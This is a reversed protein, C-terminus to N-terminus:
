TTMTAAVREDSVAFPLLHNLLQARLVNAQESFNRQLAVYIARGQATEVAIPEVGLEQFDYPSAAMDIRRIRMALEFAQTTVSSPVLPQMRMCWKYVDMNAHLCGAQDREPQEARSLALPNRQLGENTFFRWADFHTCRLGVADIATRVQDDSVRMPWSSHRRESDPQGLVMAWEHLGFCGFGAPRARMGKLLRVIWPLEQQLRQQHTPSLRTYDFRAHGHADVAFGAPLPTPDDGYDLLCADIGPNWMRLHSPRFPYYDWLFDEIPHKEGRHRRALHPEVWTDVRSHHDARAARWQEAPTEVIDAPNVHETHWPDLHLRPAGVAGRGHPSGIDHKAPPDWPRAHATDVLPCHFLTSRHLLSNLPQHRRQHHQPQQPALCGYTSRQRGNPQLAQQFLDQTQHCKALAPAVVLTSHHIVEYPLAAAGCRLPDISSVFSPNQM